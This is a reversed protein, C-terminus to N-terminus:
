ATMAARIRSMAEHILVGVHSVSIEMEAAIQKYSLGDQFKLRLAEQQLAPLAALLRMAGAAADRDAAADAPSASGASLSELVARAAMARRERRREDIARHRCVAYLWETLRGDLAAPSQECLRIFVDQVVDRASEADGTLRAAYRLLPGEFRRLAELVWERRPQEDM